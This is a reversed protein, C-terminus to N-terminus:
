DNQYAFMDQYRRACDDIASSCELDNGSTCDHDTKRYLFLEFEPIRHFIGFLRTDYLPDLIHLAFLNAHVNRIDNISSRIATFLASRLRSLM